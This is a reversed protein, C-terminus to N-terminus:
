IVMVIIGKIKVEVGVENKGRSENVTMTITIMVMMRKREMRSFMKTALRMVIRMMMTTLIM